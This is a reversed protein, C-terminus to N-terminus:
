WWENPCGRLGSSSVEGAMRPGLQRCGSGLARACGAQLSSEANRNGLEQQKGQHVRSKRSSGCWDILTGRLTHHWFVFGAFISRGRWDQEEV